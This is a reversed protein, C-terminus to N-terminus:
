AKLKAMINGFLHKFNRYLPRPLSILLTLINDINSINIINFNSYSYLGHLSM